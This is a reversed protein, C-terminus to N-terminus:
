KNAFHRILKDLLIPMLAVIILVALTYNGNLQILFGFMNFLSIRTMQMSSKLQSPLYESIPKGDFFIVTQFFGGYGGVVVLGLFIGVVLLIIYRFITKFNLKIAM